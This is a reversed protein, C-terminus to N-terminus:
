ESATIGQRSPALHRLESSLRQRGERLRRKITTESCALTLAAEKYSLGQCDVLYVTTGIEEPLRALAAKVEGEKSRQVAAEEPNLGGSVVSLTLPIAARAKRENSREIVHLGRNHIATLAYGIFSGHIRGRRAQVAVATMAEVLIDEAQQLDYGMKRAMGWLRRKHRTYLTEFAREEGEAYLKLLETDTQLVAIM